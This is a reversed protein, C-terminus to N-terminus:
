QLATPEPSKPPAKPPVQFPDAQDVSEVGLGLAPTVGSSPTEQEDVLAQMAMPLAPPEVWAESTQFPDLQISAATGPFAFAAVRARFATEQATAVFQMATPSNM